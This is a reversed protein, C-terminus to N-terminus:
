STANQQTIATVAYYVIANITESDCSFLSSLVIPWCSGTKKEPSSRHATSNHPQPFAPHNHPVALPKAPSSIRKALRTHLSTILPSWFTIIIRRTLRFKRREIVRGTKAPWIISVSIHLYTTYAIYQHKFRDDIRGGLPCRPASRTWGTTCVQFQKRVVGGAVSVMTPNVFSWFSM